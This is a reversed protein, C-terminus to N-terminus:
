RGVAPLVRRQAAMRRDVETLHEDSPGARTGNSYNQLRHYLVGVLNRCPVEGAEIDLITAWVEKPRFRVLLRLLKASRAPTTGLRELTAGLWAADWGRRAAQRLVSEPIRIEGGEESDGSSTGTPHPTRHPTIKPSNGQAHFELGKEARFELGKEAVMGSREAPSLDPALASRQSVLDTVAVPTEAGFLDTAADPREPATPNSGPRSWEYVTRWGRGSGSVWRLGVKQLARRAADFTRWDRLGAAEMLARNSPWCRGSSDMFRGLAVALRIASPPLAGLAEVVEPPVVSSGSRM